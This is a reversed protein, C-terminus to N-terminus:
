AGCQGQHQQWGPNPAGTFLTSNGTCRLTKGGANNQVFKSSPGTNDLVFLNGKRIANGRVVLEVDTNNQGILVGGSAVTNGPCGIALPDGVLIDRGSRLITIGEGKLTNGCVNVKDTAGYVNIGGRITSNFAFVQATNNAKLKGSVSSGTDIFVTQASDAKVEGRISTGIAQFFANRSVTVGGKVTSKTLTCTTNAPVSLRTKITVGSLSGTCKFAKGRHDRKHGRGHGKRKKQGHGHRDTKAGRGDGHAFASSAAGGWAILAVASVALLKKM